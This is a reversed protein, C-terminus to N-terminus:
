RKEKKVRARPMKGTMEAWFKRSKLLGFYKNALSTYEKYLRSKEQYLKRDAEIEESSPCLKNPSGHHDWIYKRSFAKMKDDLVAIRDLNASKVAFMKEKFGSKELSEIAVEIDSLHQKFLALPPEIVMKGLDEPPKKAKKVKGVM